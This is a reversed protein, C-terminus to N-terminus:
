PIKHLKLPTSYTIGKKKKKKKPKPPPHTHSPPPPSLLSNFSRNKVLKMKERMIQEKKEPEPPV